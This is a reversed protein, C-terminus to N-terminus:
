LIVEQGKVMSVTEGEDGRVLLSDLGYFAHLRNPRKNLFTYYERAFILGVDQSTIKGNENKLQADNLSHNQDVTM